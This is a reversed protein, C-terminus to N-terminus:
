FLSRHVYQLREYLNLIGDIHIFVISWKGYQWKNGHPWFSSTSVSKGQLPQQCTEFQFCYSITLMLVLFYRDILWDNSSVVHRSNFLRPDIKLPGVQVCSSEECSVSRNDWRAILPRPRTGPSGSRPAHGGFHKWQFLVFTISAAASVEKKARFWIEVFFRRSINKKTACRDSRLFWVSAEARFGSNTDM